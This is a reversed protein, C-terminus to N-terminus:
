KAQRAKKREAAIKKTYIIYAGIVNVEAHIIQTLEWLLDVRPWSTGNRWKNVAERSCGLERAIHAVSLGSHEIEATILAGFTGNNRLRIITRGWQQVDKRDYDPHTM